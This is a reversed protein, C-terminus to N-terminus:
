YILIIIAVFFPIIFYGPFAIYKVLYDPILPNRNFDFYSMAISFFRNIVVLVAYVLTFVSLVRLNRQSFIRKM